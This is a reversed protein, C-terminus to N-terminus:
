GNPSNLMSAIAPNLFVKLSELISEDSFDYYADDGKVGIRFGKEIDSSVKITVPRKLEERLGDELLKELKQKDEKSSLIEVRGDKKLLGDVLKLILEKMFNPNLDKGVKSKLAKNFLETLEEKLKLRLDRAAQRLSSETNEKLKKAQTEAESIIDRALAKAEGAIAAANDKAQDIIQRASKKAEDSGEKKIRAILSELKVDM